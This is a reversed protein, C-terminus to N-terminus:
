WLVVVALKAAGILVLWSGASALFLVMGWHRSHNASNEEGAVSQAKAKM